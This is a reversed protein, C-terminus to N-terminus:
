DNEIEGVLRRSHLAYRNKMSSFMIVRSIVDRKEGDIDTFRIGYKWSPKKRSNDSMEYIITGKILVDPENDFVKINIAGALGIGIREHSIFIAGGESVQLVEGALETHDIKFQASYNVFVRASMRFGHTTDQKMDFECYNIFASKITWFVSAECCVMM